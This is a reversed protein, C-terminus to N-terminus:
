YKDELENFLVSISVRVRTVQLKSAGVRAKLLVFVDEGNSFGM